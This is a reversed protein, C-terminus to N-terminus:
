ESGTKSSKMIQKSREIEDRVLHKVSYPSEEQIVQKAKNNKLNIVIPALLNVTTESPKERPITLIAVIKLDAQNEISLEQLDNQSLNLSYDICVFWPNIVPLAVLENELSVLWQIPDDNERSILAFKRLKDFGPIGNEFNLIENEQVDIEGVRTKYVMTLSVEQM